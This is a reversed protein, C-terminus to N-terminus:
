DGRSVASHLSVCDLHQALSGCKLFNPWLGANRPPPPPDLILCLVQMSWIELVVTGPLRDGPIPSPPVPAMWSCPQPFTQLKTLGGASAFQMVQGSALQVLAVAETSAVMGLVGGALAHTGAHM